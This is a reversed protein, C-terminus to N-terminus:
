WYDSTLSSIFGQFNGLLFLKVALCCFLIDQDKSLCMRNNNINFPNEAIPSVVYM